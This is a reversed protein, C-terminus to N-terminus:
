ISTEIFRVDEGEFRIKDKGCVTTIDRVVYNEVQPGNYNVIEEGERSDFILANELCEGTLNNVFGNRSGARINVGNCCKQFDLDFIRFHNAYVLEVANKCGSFSLGEIIFDGANYLYIGCEASICANETGSITIGKQRGYITRVRPLTINHNVFVRKCGDSAILSANELHVHIDSHLRVPEDVNWIGGEIVVMCEGSANAEDIAKQISASNSKETNKSNICIM